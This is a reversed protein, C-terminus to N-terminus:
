LFIRYWLVVVQGETLDKFMVARLMHLSFYQAAKERHGAGSLGM